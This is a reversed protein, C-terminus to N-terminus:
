PNPKSAAPAGPRTTMSREIARLADIQQALQDQKKQADRLQQNQREVHDELRRQEGLRSVLLRAWPQWPAAQPDTSKVLPDLLNLARVTDAPNRTQGLALAMQLAQEPNTPADLRVFEKSLEAPAMQRVRDYYAIFSRAARDADNVDPVKVIVEVPVRVEKITPEPPAAARKPPPTVCGALLLAAAAPLALRVAWRRRETMAPM